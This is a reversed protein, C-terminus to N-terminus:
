MYMGRGPAAATGMDESRPAILIRASGIHLYGRYCEEAFCITSNSWAYHGAGAAAAVSEALSTGRSGAAGVGSTPPTAAVDGQPADPPLCVPRRWAV